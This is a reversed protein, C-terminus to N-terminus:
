IKPDSFVGAIGKFLPSSAAKNGLASLIEFAISLRKFYQNKVIMVVLGTFIQM